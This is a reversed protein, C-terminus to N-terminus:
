AKDDVRAPIGKKALVYNLYKAGEGVIVAAAFGAGTVIWVSVDAPPTVVGLTRLLSLVGAVILGAVAKRSVPVHFM